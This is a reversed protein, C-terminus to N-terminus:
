IVYHGGSTIVGTWLEPRLTWCQIQLPILMKMTFSLSTTIDIFCTLVPGILKLWSRKKVSLGKFNAKSTSAARTSHGKFDSSIGSEHITSKLWNSITSTALGGYPPRTSRLLKSSGEDSRWDITRELYTRICSVPDLDSDSLYEHIDVTPLAEGIKSTKSLTDLTLTLKIGTDIMDATTLAQLESAHAASTLAFITCWILVLYFISM